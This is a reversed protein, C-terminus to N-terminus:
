AHSASERKVLPSYDRLMDHVTDESISLGRARLRSSIRGAAPNRREPDYGFEEALGILVTAVSEPRHAPHASAAIPPPLGELAKKLEPVMEIQRRKAWTLYATPTLPDKLEGLDMARSVLTVLRRFSVAVEASLCDEVYASNSPHYGLTLAVAEELTWFALQVWHGWNVIPFPSPVEPARTDNSM